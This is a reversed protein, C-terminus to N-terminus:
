PSATAKPSPSQRSKLLDLASNGKPTASPSASSLAGFSGSSTAVSESPSPVPSPNSVQKPPNTLAPQEQAPQSSPAPTNKGIGLIFYASLGAVILLVLVGVIILIKSLNIHKGGSNLSEAGNTPAPQASPVVLNEPSAVPPNYIDNTPAQPSDGILHSLDTPATDNNLPPQPTQTQVFAAGAIPIDAPMSTVTSQVEPPNQPLPNNTTSPNDLSIPPFSSAPNSLPDPESTLGPDPQPPTQTPSANLWSPPIPPQPDNPVLPPPENQPFASAPNAGYDPVPPNASPLPPNNNNSNDQNDM